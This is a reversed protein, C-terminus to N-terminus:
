EQRLWHRPNIHSDAPIREEELAWFKKQAAECEDFHAEFDEILHERLAMMQFYCTEVFHPMYDPPVVPKPIQDKLVHTGDQFSYQCGQCTHTPAYPRQIMNPIQHQAQHQKNLYHCGWCRRGKQISGTPDLYPIPAIAQRFLLNVEM